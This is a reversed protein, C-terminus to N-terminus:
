LVAKYNEPYSAELVRTKPTPFLVQYTEIRADWGYSKFQQLINEAVWKDRPMGLYHQQASLTKINNGIAAASLEKDFSAELTQQQQAHESSFGSLKQQAYANQLLLILAIGSTIKKSNM